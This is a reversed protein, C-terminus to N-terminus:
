NIRWRELSREAIKAECGTLKAPINALEAEIAAKRRLIREKEHEWRCASGLRGAVFLSSPVVYVRAM